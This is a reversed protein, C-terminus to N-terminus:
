SARMRNTVSPGSSVTTSRASGTSVSSFSWVTRQRRVPRAQRARFRSPTGTPRPVAWLRPTQARPRQVQWTERLLVTGTEATVTVAATAAEAVLEAAGTRLSRNSRTRRRGSPGAVSERSRPWPRGPARSGRDARVPPTRTACRVPSAGPPARAIRGAAFSPTVPSARSNEVCQALDKDAPSMILAPCVKVHTRCAPHRAVASPRPM